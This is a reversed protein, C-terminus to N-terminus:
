GTAHSYRPTALLTAAIVLEADRPPWVRQGGILFPLVLTFMLDM